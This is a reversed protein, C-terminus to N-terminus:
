PNYPGVSKQAWVRRDRRGAPSLLVEDCTLCSPWLHHPRNEKPKPRPYISPRINKGKNKRYFEFTTKIERWSNNCERYRRM